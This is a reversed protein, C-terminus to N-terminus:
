SADSDQKKLGGAGDKKKVTSLYQDPAPLKSAYKLVGDIHFRRSRGDLVVGHPSRYKGLQLTNNVPVSRRVPGFTSGDRVTSEEEEDVEEPGDGPGSAAGRKKPPGGTAGVFRQLELRDASQGTVNLVPRQQYRTPGPFSATPDEYISGRVEVGLVNKKHKPGLFGTKMNFSRNKKEVSYQGPGPNHNFVKNCVFERKRNKNPQSAAFSKSINTKTTPM